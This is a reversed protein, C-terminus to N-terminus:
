ANGRRRPEDHPRHHSQNWVGFEERSWDTRRLSVIAYYTAGLLLAFLASFGILGGHGQEHQLAEWAENLVSRPHTFLDWSNLRLFRGLYVGVGSLLIAAVCVMAGATRGARLTVVTQMLHLSVAALMLGCLTFATLLIISYWLHEQWHALYLWDTILYPANPFFILWVLFTLRFIWRQQPVRQHAAIAVLSALYPMWALFLNLKLRPGKWPGVVEPWLFFLGLAVVSLAVLPYFLRSNLWHLM